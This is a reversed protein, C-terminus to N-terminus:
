RRLDDLCEASNLGQESEGWSYVNESAISVVALFLKDVVEGSTQFGLKVFANSQQTRRQLPPSAFPSAQGDVLTLVGSCPKRYTNAIRPQVGPSIRGAGQPHAGGTGRQDSVALACISSRM